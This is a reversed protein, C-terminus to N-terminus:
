GPNKHSNATDIDFAAFGDEGKGGLAGVAKLMQGSRAFFDGEVVIFIGEVDFGEGRLECGKYLGVADGADCDLLAAFFALKGTARGRELDLADDLQQVVAVHLQERRLGQGRLEFFVREVQRRREVFVLM